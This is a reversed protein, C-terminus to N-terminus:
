NLTSIELSPRGTFRRLSIIEYGGAKEKNGSILAETGSSDRVGESLILM